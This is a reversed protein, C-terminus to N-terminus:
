STCLNSVKYETDYADLTSLHTRAETISNVSEKNKLYADKENHWNILKNYRDVHNRNMMRVKEAFEERYLILFIDFFIWRALHDDLVRKKEAAHDALEKFKNDVTMHRETIKEPNEISWKSYQTDYKSSLVEGGLKKLEPVSTASESFIVEM